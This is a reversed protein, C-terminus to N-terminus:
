KVAAKHAGKLVTPGTVTIDERLQQMDMTNSNIGDVKAIDDTTKFSGAKSRFDIIAKAHAATIGKVTQLEAQTATNINVAAYATGTFTLLAVVTILSKKM